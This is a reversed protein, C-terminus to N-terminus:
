SSPHSGYVCANYSTPPQRFPPCCSTALHRQHVSWWNPKRTHHIFGAQLWSFYVVLGNSLMWRLPCDDSRSSLANCRKSLRIGNAVLGTSSCWQRGLLRRDVLVTLFRRFDASCLDLIFLTKMVGSKFVWIRLTIMSFKSYHTLPM